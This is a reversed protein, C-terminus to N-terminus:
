RRFYFMIFDSIIYLMITCVMRKARASLPKDDATNTYKPIAVIGIEDTALRPRKGSHSLFIGTFDEHAFHASCVCSSPTPGWKAQKLCVFDVWQKRRKKAEPREDGAFPIFHLSIGKETDTVNSCSGVVCRNPMKENEHSKNASNGERHYYV